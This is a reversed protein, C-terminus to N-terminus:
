LTGPPITKSLHGSKFFNSFAKLLNISFCEAKRVYKPISFPSNTWFITSLSWM